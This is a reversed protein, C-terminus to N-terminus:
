PRLLTVCKSETRVALDTNRLHHIHIVYYEVKSLDGREFIGTLVHLYFDRAVIIIRISSEWSREIPSCNILNANEVSDPRPVPHHEM